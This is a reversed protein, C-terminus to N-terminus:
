DGGGTGNSNDGCRDVRFFSRTGVYSNLVNVECM